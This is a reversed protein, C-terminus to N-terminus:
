FFRPERLEWVEKRSVGGVVRCRGWRLIWLGAAAAAAGFVLMPTVTRDADRDQSQTAEASEFDWFSLLAETPWPM